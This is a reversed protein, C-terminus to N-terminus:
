STELDAQETLNLLLSHLEIWNSRLSEDLCRFLIAVQSKTIQSASGEVHSVTEKMQHGYPM